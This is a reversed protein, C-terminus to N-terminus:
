RRRRRRAALPLAGLLPALGLLDLSGGGGPLEPGSSGGGGSNESNLSVTVTLTGTDEDGDADELRFDCTDTGNGAGATPTFRVQNDNVIDCVGLSGQTAITVEHDDTSGSGLQTPANLVVIGATPNGNRSTANFNGAVPVRESVTVSVTAESFQGDNDTLRYTFSDAGSFFGSPTYRIGEGEVVATGNAPNSVVTLTNPESGCTDNALVAILTSTAEAVNASDAVATPSNECLSGTFDFRGGAWSNNTLLPGGDEDPEVYPGTIIYERTWYARASTIANSSTTLVLVVNSFGPTLPVSNPDNNAADAFPASFPDIDAIGDDDKDRNPGFLAGSSTGSGTGACDTDGPGDVCEYNQFVATTTAGLNPVLVGATGTRSFGLSREIGVRESLPLTAGSTDWVPTPTSLGGANPSPFLNAPNGNIALAEPTLEGRSGIRYRFGGGGQATAADVQTPPLTHTWLDWRELARDGNGTEANYVAAAFVLTGSILDDSGDAPTDNDDVTVTGSLPLALKGDDTPPVVYALNDGISGKAYFASGGAGAFLPGRWTARGPARTRAFSCDFGGLGVLVNACLNTVPAMAGNINYTISDADAPAALGLLAAALTAPIAVNRM